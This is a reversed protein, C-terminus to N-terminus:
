RSEGGRFLGQIVSCMVEASAARVPISISVQVDGRGKASVSIMEVSSGPNKLAQLPVSGIEKFTDTIKESCPGASVAKRKHVWKQIGSWSLGTAESIERVSYATLLSIVRDKLSNPYRKIQRDKLDQVENKVDQLLEEM